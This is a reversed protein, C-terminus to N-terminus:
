PPRETLTLIDPSPPPLPSLPSLPLPLPFFPLFPFAGESDKALFVPHITAPVPSFFVKASESESHLWKSFDVWEVGHDHQRNHTDHDGNRYNKHQGDHVSDRASHRAPAEEVKPSLSVTAPTFGSASTWGNLEMITSVTTLTIIEMEIIKTNDM